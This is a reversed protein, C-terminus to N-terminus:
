SRSPHPKKAEVAEDWGKVKEFWRWFNRVAEEWEDKSLSELRERDARSGQNAGDDKM